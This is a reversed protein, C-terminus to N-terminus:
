GRNEDSLRVLADAVVVGQGKPLVMLPNIDLEVLRDANDQALQAVAKIANVLADRDGSPRGRFGNLLTTAKLSDLVDEIEANSAPLLLIAADKHFEVLEGGSGVVLHLGFQPDNNAGVLIEVVTERVMAEILVTGSLEFLARCAEDVADATSLGVKVAGAETKHALDEGVAKAVVPFGIAEAAAIAETPSSVLAGKPTQLGYQSVFKKSRWEDLTRVSSSEDKSMPNPLSGGGMGADLAARLARMTESLGQMPAIGASLFRDRAQRPLNEPLTASVLTPTGTAAAADIIADTAPEWTSGDCKELHPFDLILVGADVDASLAGSFCDTLAARDEWIYTHYDLPNAIAVKDGLTQYLRQRQEEDFDPFEFGYEEGLDAMLAAEGGSCSMSVLRNSALPPLVSLLKLTEMLTSLTDVRAIGLRAFFADYLRDSGALSSTHSLTARAGKESRGAKLVVVPKGAAKANRTAEAFAPLDDISEAILGICTVRPDRSLAEVYDGFGLDAKNGVSIVYALPVSRDHMTLSISINGSQAVIAAGKECREGGHQDPWLAAGDLYNLAGYCNPGVVAMDGAMDLLRQQRDNGVGGIERFGSAYCVAGGANAQAFMGMADVSADPPIAVFAADPAGPLADVSQFCAIGGLDKRRPNIPWIEGEFGIKQCQQVVREAELGGMVAITKPRLLRELNEIKRSRSSEM